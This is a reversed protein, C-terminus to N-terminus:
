LIIKKGFANAITHLPMAHLTRLKSASADPITIAKENKYREPVGLYCMIREFALKGRGQKYPLMGRIARRVFRDPMRQFFPGKYPDGRDAREHMTSLVFTRPGTLVVKECNLIVIKEGLLAQKAAHSALRGLILNTGDIIM